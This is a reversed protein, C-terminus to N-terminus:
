SRPLYHAVSRQASIWTRVLTKSRCYKGPTTKKSNLYSAVSLGVLVARVGKESTCPIGERPPRSYTTDAVLESASKTWLFIRQRYHVREPHDLDTINATWFVPTLKEQLAKLRGEYTRISAFYKAVEAEDLPGFISRNHLFWM